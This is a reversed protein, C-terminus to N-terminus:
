LLLSLVGIEDEEAAAEKKQGVEDAAAACEDVVMRGLCDDEDNRAKEATAVDEDSSASNVQAPLIPDIAWTIPATTSTLNSDPRGGM